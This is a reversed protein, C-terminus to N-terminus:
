SYVSGLLNAPPSMSVGAGVIFLVEGRAHAILLREPIAPLGEGLSIVRDVSSNLLPSAITLLM